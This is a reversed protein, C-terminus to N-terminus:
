GESAPGTYNMARLLSELYVYLAGGNVKDVYLRRDGSIESTIIYHIRDRENAQRWARPIHTHIHPM